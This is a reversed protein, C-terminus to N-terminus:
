KYCKKSTIIWILASTFLFFLNIVRIHFTTSQKKFKLDIKTKDRILIKIEKKFEIGEIWGYEPGLIKCKNEFFYNNLHSEDHYKSIYGCRYDREINNSCTEVLQLYNNTIGGNVGGMFYNYQNNLIYPIFAKSSKNRDYPFWFFSKDYHGPHLVCLLGNEENNNLPLFDDNVTNLFRL